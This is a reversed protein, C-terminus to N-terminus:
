VQRFAGGGSTPDFRVRWRDRVSGHLSLFRSASAEATENWFNAISWSATAKLTCRRKRLRSSNESVTDIAPLQLNYGTRASNTIQEALSEAVGRLSTVEAIGQCDVLLGILDSGLRRPLYKLASTKGTRRGGYLLLIPAQDALAVTELAEFIDQRGKFRGESTRPDLASGAIYALPIEGQGKAEERWSRKAQEVLGLWRQVTPGFRPAIKANEPLNLSQQLTQLKEVPDKLLEVRRYPSSGQQAARIGRSIDLLSPLITGLQRPPPSPIWALDDAINAIDSLRDCRRTSEATIGVM